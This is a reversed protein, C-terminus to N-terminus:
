FKIKLETYSGDPHVEYTMYVQNGLELGRVFYEISVGLNGGGGWADEHFKIEELPFKM